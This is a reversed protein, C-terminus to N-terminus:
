VRKERGRRIAEALAAAASEPCYRGPLGPERWARLGLKWAAALDVGYPPSALDLILARSDVYKLHEADLVMAPPTSFIVGARSLAETVDDPAAAGSAEAERRHAETRSLVTVRAGIATLLATLARGIRGWGIVACEMGRLSRRSVAMAASTAGEATLAANECLLAEDQWLDVVRGDDPGPKPGCTYVTATPAARDLVAEMAIDLKPPVNTVVNAATPLLALATRPEDVRRADLLAALAKMRADGGLIITDM